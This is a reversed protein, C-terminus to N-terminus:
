RQMVKLMLFELISFEKLFHKYRSLAEGTSASSSIDLEARGQGERALKPCQLPLMPLGDDESLDDKSDDPETDFNREELELKPMKIAPAVLTGKSDPNSDEVTKGNRKTKRSDFASIPPIQLVDNKTQKVGLFTIFLM